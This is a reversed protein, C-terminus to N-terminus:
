TDNLQKETASTHKRAAEFVNESKPERVLDGAQYVKGSSFEPVPVPLHNLGKPSWLAPEALDTKKKSLHKKNAEYVQGSRADRVLNGPLYQQGNAFEAIPLTLYLFNNESNNALNSFYFTKRLTNQINTYNLF